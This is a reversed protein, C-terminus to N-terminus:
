VLNTVVLEAVPQWVLPTSTHPRLLDQRTSRLLAYICLIYIPIYVTGTRIHLDSKRMELSLSLSLSKKSVHLDRKRMKKSRLRAVCIWVFATFM